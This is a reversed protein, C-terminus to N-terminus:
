RRTLRTQRGSSRSMGHRQRMSRAALRLDAGVISTRPLRLVGPLVGRYLLKGPHSVAVGLHNPTFDPTICSAV